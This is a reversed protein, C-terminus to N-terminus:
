LIGGRERESLIKNRRELRVCSNCRNVLMWKSDQIAVSVTLAGWGSTVCRRGRQTVYFFRSRLLSAQFLVSFEQNTSVVLWGRRCWRALNFCSVCIINMLGLMYLILITKSNKHENVLICLLVWLQFSMQVQMLNERISQRPDKSRWATELLHEPRFSTSLM